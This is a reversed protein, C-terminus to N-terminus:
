SNKQGPPVVTVKVSLVPKGPLLTVAFRDPGAYGRNPTYDVRTYSGVTHVFVTGHLAPQTLLGAAWPGHEPGALTIGCWGGDNAVRLAAVTTHGHNLVVGVPVTCYKAAGQFDVAYRPAQDMEAPPRAQCAALAALTAVALARTLHRGPHHPQQRTPRM